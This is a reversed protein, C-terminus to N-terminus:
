RYRCHKYGRSDWWCYRSRSIRPGGIVAGATGGVVAGVPGAVVAGATGGIVAGTATRENSSAANAAVPLATLAALATVIFIKRM